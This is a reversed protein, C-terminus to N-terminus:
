QGDQKDTLTFPIPMNMFFEPEAYIDALAQEYPQEGRYSLTVKDIVNWPADSRLSIPCLKEEIRCTM